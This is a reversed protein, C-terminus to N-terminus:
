CKKRVIFFIMISSCVIIVPSLVIVAVNNFKADHVEVIVDAPVGDIDGLGISYTVSFNHVTHDTNVTKEALVNNDADVTKYTLKARKLSFIGRTEITATAQIEFISEYRSHITRSRSVSKVGPILSMVFLAIGVALLGIPLILRKKM